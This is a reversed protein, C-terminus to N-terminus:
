KENRIKVARIGNACAKMYYLQEENMENIIKFIIDKDSLIKNRQINNPIGVMPDTNKEKELVNKYNSVGLLYDISIDFYKAITILKYLDPIQEGNEYHSISSRGVDLDKSLREQTIKRTFRLTKLRESFIKCVEIKSKETQM